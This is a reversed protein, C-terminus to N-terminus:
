HLDSSKSSSDSKTSLELLEVLGKVRETPFAPQAIPKLALAILNIMNDDAAIRNSSLAGCKKCRHIIAWEGNKRVWVAIPEMIGNCDALRDGPQIDLHVSSLCVPCHNRHQSGAGDPMVKTGCVRCIFTENCPHSTYYAEKYIKQHKEKM